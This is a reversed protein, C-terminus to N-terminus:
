LCAPFPRGLTTRNTALLQTYPLRMGQAHVGGRGWAVTRTGDPGGCPLWQSFATGPHDDSPYGRVMARRSAVAFSLSANQAVYGAGAQGQRRWRSGTSLPINHPLIFRELSLVGTATEPGRQRQHQGRPGMGATLVLCCKLHRYPRTTRVGRFQGCRGM